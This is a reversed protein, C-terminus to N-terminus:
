DQCREFLCVSGTNGNFIERFREAHFRMVKMHPEATGCSFFANCLDTCTAPCVLAVSRWVFKSPLPENSPHKASALRSACARPLRCRCPLDGRFPRAAPSRRYRQWQHWAVTETRSSPISGFSLDGWGFKLLAQVIRKGHRAHLRGASPPRQPIRHSAEM